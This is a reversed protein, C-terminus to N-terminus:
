VSKRPQFTLHSNFHYRITRNISVQNYTELLKEHDTINKMKHLFWRDIKTLEYLQDVTYNSRLASALVFIRKDTPTQLEEESVPKITHDFGVCNEDVMRLAKQFAEEFSRGIAMVEGVSKMSSGITTSVRLFKSLDWRPVKVVCYDLSPEFNATTSNTVSNRFFFFNRIKKLISDCLFYQLSQHLTWFCFDLFIVNQLNCKFILLSCFVSM